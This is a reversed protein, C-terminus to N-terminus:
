VGGSNIKDIIFSLKAYWEKKCPGVNKYEVIKENTKRLTKHIVTNFYKRM